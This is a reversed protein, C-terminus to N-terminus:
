KKADDSKKMNDNKADDPKKVNDSENANDSKKTWKKCQRVKEDMKQM